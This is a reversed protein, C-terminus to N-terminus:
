ITKGKLVCSVYSTPMTRTLFVRQLTYRREKVKEAGLAKIGEGDLVLEDIHEFVASKWGLAMERLKLIRVPKLCDKPQEHAQSDAQNFFPLPCFNGFLDLRSLTGVTGAILRCELLTEINKSARLWISLSHLQKAYFMILHMTYRLEDCSPEHHYFLDISRGRTQELQMQAAAWIHEYSRGVQYPFM